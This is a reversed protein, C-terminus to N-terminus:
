SQNHVTRTKFRFQYRKIIYCYHNTTRNRFLLRDRGFSSSSRATGHILVVNAERHAFLFSFGKSFKWKPEKSPDPLVLVTSTPLLLLLRPLGIVLSPMAPVHPTMSMFCHNERFTQKVNTYPITALPLEIHVEKFGYLDSFYIITFRFFFTDILYTFSHILSSCPVM